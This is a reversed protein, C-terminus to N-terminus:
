LPAKRCRTCIRTVGNRRLDQAIAKLTQAVDALRPDSPAAFDTPIEIWNHDRFFCVVDAWLQEWIAKADIM